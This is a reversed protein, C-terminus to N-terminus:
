GGLRQLADRLLLRAGRVDAGADPDEARAAEAAADQALVVEASSGGREAAMTEWRERVKTPLRADRTM